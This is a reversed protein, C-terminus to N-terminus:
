TYTHIYILPPTQLLHSHFNPLLASLWVSYLSFLRLVSQPTAPFTGRAQSSFTELKIKISETCHRKKKKKKKYENVMKNSKTMMNIGHTNCKSETSFDNKNFFKFCFALLTIHCSYNAGNLFKLLYLHKIKNKRKTTFDM